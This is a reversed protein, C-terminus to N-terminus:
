QTAQKRKSYLNSSSKYVNASQNIPKAVTMNQIEKKDILTIM